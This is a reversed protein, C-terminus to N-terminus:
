FVGEISDVLSDCRQTYFTSRLLIKLQDSEHYKDRVFRRISDNEGRFFLRGRREDVRRGEGFDGEDGGIDAHDVTAHARIIADENVFGAFDRM